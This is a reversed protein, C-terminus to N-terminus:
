IPFFNSINNIHTQRKGQFIETVQSSYEIHKFHSQYKEYELRYIENMPGDFFDKLVRMLDPGNEEDILVKADKTVMDYGDKGWCIFDSVVVYYNEKKLDIPEDHIRVTELLIRNMPERKPDFKFEIRSVQGFRGEYKPYKSVSNELIKLLTEGNCEIKCINLHFPLIDNLDGFSMWGKEYIKDARFNGAHIIACDGLLQHRMIDAIFCGFFNEATRIKSFRHDMESDIYFMNKVMAKEFNCYHDDVHQKLVPNEVIDKTVDKKYITVLFKEKIFFYYPKDSKVNDDNVVGFTLQIDRQALFEDKTLNSPIQEIEIVSLNKFNSGSKVM